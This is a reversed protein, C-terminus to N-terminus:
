IGIFGQQRLTLGVVNFGTRALSPGRESAPSIASASVVALSIATPGIQPPWSSVSSM